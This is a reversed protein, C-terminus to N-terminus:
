ESTTPLIRLGALAASPRGTEWDADVMGKPLARYHEHIRKRLWKPYSDEETWPGKTLGCIECRQRPVTRRHRKTM